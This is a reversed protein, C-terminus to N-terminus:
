QVPALKYTGAKKGAGQEVVVIEKRDKLRALASSIKQDEIGDATAPNMEKLKEKISHLTFEGAIQKAANRVQDRFSGERPRRNRPKSGSSDSTMKWVREIAALNEKYDSEAKQKLRYYEKETM